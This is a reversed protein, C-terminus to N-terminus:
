QATPPLVGTKVLHSRPFPQRCNDCRLVLANATPMMAGIKCNPCGPRHDSWGAVFAAGGPKQYGRWTGDSIAYSM